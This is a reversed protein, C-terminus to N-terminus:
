ALGSLEASDEKSFILAGTPPKQAIVRKAGVVSVSSAEGLRLVLSGNELRLLAVERNTVKALQAMMETSVQGRGVVVDAGSELKGLMEAHSARIADADAAKGVLPVEVREYGPGPTASAAADGGPAHGPEAGTPTSVDPAHASAAPEVGAGASPADRLYDPVDTITGFKEYIPHAARHIAAKSQAMFEEWKALVKSRLSPDKEMQDIATATADAEAIAKNVGMGTLPHPTAAADGIVMVRGQLASVAGAEQMPAEFAWQKIVKADRAIGVKAGAKRVLADLEKQQAATLGKEALYFKDPPLATLTYTVDNDGLRAVGEAYSIVNRGKQQFFTAVVKSDMHKKPDVHLSKLTDSGAGDAVVVYKARVTQPMGGEKRVHVEVFDGSADLEPDGIVRMNFRLDVNENQEAAAHLSKELDRTRMTHASPSAAMVQVPHADEAFQPVDHSPETGPAFAYRASTTEPMVAGSEQVIQASRDKIGLIQGRMRAASRAEVVLVKHGENALKLGTTTGGPGGGVVVVDYEPLVLEDVLPASRLIGNRTAASERVASSAEVESQRATTADARGILGREGGERVSGEATAPTVGSGKELYTSQEARLEKDFQARLEKAFAQDAEHGPGYGLPTPHWYPTHAPDKGQAILWADVRKEAREVAARTAAAQQDYTAVMDPHLVARADPGTGKPGLVSAVSDQATADPFNTSPGRISVMKAAGEPSAYNISSDGAIVAFSAKDRPIPWEHIGISDLLKQEAPTFL